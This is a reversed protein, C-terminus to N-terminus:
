DAFTADNFYLWAAPHVKVGDLIKSVPWYQIDTYLPLMIAKGIVIEQLRRYFEAREDPDVTTRGAEILADMEPDPYHWLNGLATGILDSHFMQYSYDPELTGYGMLAFDHEGGTIGSVLAGWEMIRLRLEIGLREVWAQIMQATLIYDSRDRVLFVGSLRVGDKSRIGDPGPVWGAEDLIEMAREPDHHYAYDPLNEDYGLFFHPFPGLAPIANGRKVLSIVLDKDIAHSFARRVAVDSFMPRTTNFGGYLGVGPLYVWNMHFQGSDKLRQVDKDQLFDLAHVEGTELAVVSAEMDTIILFDLGDVYPAGQNDLFEPGWAYADNRELRIIEGPRWSVFSFPGTGVPNRAYQDGLEEVARQNLPLLRGHAVYFPFPGFPETHVVKFTYEDIVEVRELPGIDTVGARAGTAPDVIREFTYKFDHATLNDGNHFYVDERLYFTWEREDESVEWAKALGPVYQGLNQYDEHFLPDHLMYLIKTTMRTTDMHVDLSVPENPIGIRVTGAAGALGIAGVLLLTGLFALRFHSRAGHHRRNKAM